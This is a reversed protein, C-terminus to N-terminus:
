EKLTAGRLESLYGFFTIPHEKQCKVCTIVANQANRGGVVRDIYDIQKGCSCQIKLTAM